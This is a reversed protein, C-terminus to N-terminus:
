LEVPSFSDDQEPIDDLHVSNNSSNTKIEKIEALTKDYDKESTRSALQAM